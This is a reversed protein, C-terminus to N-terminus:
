PTISAQLDGAANANVRLQYATGPSLNKTLPALEPHDGGSLPVISFEWAGHALAPANVTTTAQGELMVSFSTEGGDVFCVSEGTGRNGRVRIQKDSNSPRIQALDGVVNLIASAPKGDPCDPDVNIDDPDMDCCGAALLFLSSAAVSWIVVRKM